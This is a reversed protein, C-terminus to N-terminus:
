CLIILKVCNLSTCMQTIVPLAIFLSAGVYAYSNRNYETRPRSLQLPCKTSYRTRYNVTRKCILSELYTPTLNNQIKFVLVSSVLMKERLNYTKHAVCGLALM